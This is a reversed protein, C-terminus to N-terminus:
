QKEVIAITLRSICILKQQNDTIRIDWIHTRRGLHVATAKAYVDSSNEIVSRLHNGNIEMGLCYHTNTNIIMNSAASGVTEALALSAGGHLVRMPQVTRHDVPMKATLFNDGIETFEIGLAEMMTNKNFANALALDAEPRFM